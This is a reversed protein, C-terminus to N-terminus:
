TAVEEPSRGVIDAYIEPDTAGETGFVLIRSTDDLDLIRRKDADRAAALFGALGAVGSEGAVIIPDGFPPEALLRMCDEAAADELTMMADACASLIEWAIRSVEGCSLGGMVSDATVDVVVPHGATLSAYWCAASKPEVLVSRPRRRGFRQWYQGATAAAMGGVGAQLFLHTPPSTDPLQEISEAAMLAYGQTVDRPAQMTVDSATDPIVHWGEAEATTRATRVTDDFSGPHRRVEAGYAAIARERRESVAQNIFIVCRCGFMRAGWAVSRGHNGDTAATVSIRSAAERYRGGLLDATTVEAAGVIGPLERLLLRAVAYAGGLPKFSKLGFRHAEDKYHLSAVGAAHALGPLATLPTPRYDPWAGVTERVARLGEANLIREQDPGYERGTCASPNLALVSPHAAFQMATEGQRVDHVVCDDAATVIRGNRIVVRTM